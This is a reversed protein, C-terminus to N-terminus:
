YILKLFTQTCINTNGELLMIENVLTEQWTINHINSRYGLMLANWELIVSIFEGGM